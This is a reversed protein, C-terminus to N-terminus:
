PKLVRETDTELLIGGRQIRPNQLTQHILQLFRPASMLRRIAPGKRHAFVRAGDTRSLRPSRVHFRSYFRMVSENRMVQLGHKWTQSPKWPSLLICVRISPHPSAGRDDPCRNRQKLVAVECNPDTMDPILKM